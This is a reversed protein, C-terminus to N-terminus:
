GTLWFRRSPITQKVRFQPRPCVSEVGSDRARKKADAAVAKKGKGKEKVAPSSTSASPRLKKTQQELLQKRKAFGAENLKLLRAEPVWEDWRCQVMLELRLKRKDPCFAPPLLPLLPSVDTEM